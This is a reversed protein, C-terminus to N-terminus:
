GSLGPPRDVVTGIGDRKYIVTINRNQVPQNVAVAPGISTNLSLQNVFPVLTLQSITLVAVAIARMPNERM